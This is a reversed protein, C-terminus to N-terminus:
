LKEYAVEMGCIRCVKIWVDGAHHRGQEFIHDHSDTSSGVRRRKGSRLDDKTAAFVAPVVKGDVDVDIPDDTSGRKMSSTGGTAIGTDRYPRQGARKQIDEFTGQDDEGFLGGYKEHVRRRAKVRRLLDRWRNLAEERSKATAREEAQAGTAAAGDRVMGEYEVAIVIGEIRPISRGSRVEFGTMCPAFDFGLKRAASAAHQMNVHVAGKPLHVSTWLDVNGRSNKPVVGDVCAPIVLPVTQWEGFLDSLGDPADPEKAKVKSKIEKIPEADAKVERMDRLWRDRTHLTRVHSRLFVPVNDPGVTGLVNERPYIAEYRKLHREVVYLPHNRMATLTKPVAEKMACLDFEIQESTKAIDGVHDAARGTFAATPRIEGNVFGTDERNDDSDDFGFGLLIAASADLETSEGSAAKALEGNVASSTVRSARPRMGLSPSPKAVTLEDDKAGNVGEAIIANAPHGGRDIDDDGTGGGGAGVVGECSSSCNALTKEFLGARPRAQQVQQWASVYRRTVDTLIGSEVAVVHSATAKDAIPRAQSKARVEALNVRRSGMSRPAPVSTKEVRRGSVGRGSVSAASTALAETGTIAQTVDKENAADVLGAVPDVHTWRGAIFVEVWGYLGALKTHDAVTHAVNRNKPINKLKASSPPPKHPLPQMPLVVRCRVTTARIAAAALVVLDLVDGRRKELCSIARESTSCPRRASAGDVLREALFTCRFWLAFRRLAELAASRCTGSIAGADGPVISLARAQLEINDAADDMRRQMAALLIIHVNYRNLAQVARMRNAFRERSKAQKEAAKLAKVASPDDAALPPAAAEAAAAALSAAVASAAGADAAVDDDWIEEDDEDGDDEDDCDDVLAVPEAVRYPLPPPKPRSRAPPRAPAAPAEVRGRGRGRGRGRAARRTSAREVAGALAATSADRLAPPAASRPRM